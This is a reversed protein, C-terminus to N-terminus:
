KHRKFYTRRSQKYRAIQARKRSYAEAAYAYTQVNRREAAKRADERAKWPIYKETCKDHCGPYRKPPHCDICPCPDNNSM